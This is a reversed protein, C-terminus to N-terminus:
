GARPDEPRARYRRRCGSWPTWSCCPRVGARPRPGPRRRADAPGGRSPCPSAAERHQRILVTRHPLRVKDGHALTLSPRQGQPGPPQHRALTDAQGKGGLRREQQGHPRKLMPNPKSGFREAVHQRRKSDLADPDIRARRTLEPRWTQRLRLCRAITPRARCLGAAHVPHPPVLPQVPALRVRTSGMAVPWATVRRYGTRGLGRYRVSRSPGIVLIQHHGTVQGAALRSGHRHAM